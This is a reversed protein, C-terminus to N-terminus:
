ALPDPPDPAPTTFRSGEGVLLDREELREGILRHNRELVDPQEPLQLRTVVLEAGRELLLRGGALQELHDSLGREVQLGHELRQRLVRYAQALGLARQD